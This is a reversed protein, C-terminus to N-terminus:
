QKTYAVVVDNRRNVNISKRNKHSKRFLIFARKVRDYIGMLATHTHINCLYNLADWQRTPPTHTHTHLLYANQKTPIIQRSIVITTSRIRVDARVRASTYSVQYRNIRHAAHEVPRIYGLYM